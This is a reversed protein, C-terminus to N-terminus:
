QIFEERKSYAVQVANNTKTQINKVYNAIFHDEISKDFLSKWFAGISHHTADHQDLYAYYEDELLVVEEGFHEYLGHLSDLLTTPPLLPVVDNKDVIRTLPLFRYQAVGKANTVKPQGFNISKEITFGDQHLHMMLLTSIAAGLSHGTIRTKYHKNLHPLIDTYVKTTDDDFGRHVYIGLKDNKQALYEADEEINDFNSTGRVSIVQLNKDPFAEIFYQVDTKSVTAVHITEPFKQHIEEETKYATMSREAYWLVETFNITKTINDRMTNCGTITLTALLLTIINIKKMNPVKSAFFRKSNLPTVM